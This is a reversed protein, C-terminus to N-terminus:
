ISQELKQRRAPDLDRDLKIFLSMRVDASPEPDRDREFVREAVEERSMVKVVAVRAVPETPSRAQRIAELAVQASQTADAYDVAAAGAEVGPRGDGESVIALSPSQEARSRNVEPTASLFVDLRPSIRPNLPKDKPKM